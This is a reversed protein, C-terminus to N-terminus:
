VMEDVVVRMDADEDHVNDYWKTNNGRLWCKLTVLTEISETTLRAHKYTVVARDASFLRESPASTAFVAILEWVIPALAPYAINGKRAWWYLVPDREDKVTENMYADLKESPTLKAPGDKKKCVRKLRDKRTTSSMPTSPPFTNSSTPPPSPLLGRIYAIAAKKIREDLISGKQYPDM